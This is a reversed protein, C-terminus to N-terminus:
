QVHRCRCCVVPPQRSCVAYGAGHGTHGDVMVSNRRSGLFDSYEQIYHMNPLDRGVHSTMKHRAILILIQLDCIVVFPRMFHNVNTVSSCPVPTRTDRHGAQILHREHDLVAVGYLSNDM